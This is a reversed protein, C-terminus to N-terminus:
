IVVSFDGAPYWGEYSKMWTYGDYRYQIGTTLNTVFNVSQLVSSDFSVFWQSGDYEIISNAKAVLSGWANSPEQNINSGIDEVILYRQGLSPEPLGNDELLTSPGKQLPNIVSNVPELTNQPLTDPDVNFILLRDDNPHFAITGVIDTEM